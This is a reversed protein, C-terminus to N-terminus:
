GALETQRLVSIIQTQDQPKPDFVDKVSYLSYCTVM